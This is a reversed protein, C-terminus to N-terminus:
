TLLWRVGAMGAFLGAISLGVSAGVYAAAHGFAGRQILTAAELSFTSFTTFAGLMGVALFARMAATPSWAFASAAVLAGMLLSGLANVAILGVPMGILHQGNFLNEFRGVLGHRALAGLAGGAAIALLTKM